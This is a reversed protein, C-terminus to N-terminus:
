DPPRPPTDRSAVAVGSLLIKGEGMPQDYDDLTHLRVSIGKELELLDMLGAYSRRWEYLATSSFPFSPALDENIRPRVWAEVGLIRCFEVYIEHVELAVAARTEEKRAKPPDRFVKRCDALKKKALSFRNQQQIASGKEEVFIKGPGQEFATLRGKLEDKEDSPGKAKRTLNLKALQESLKDMENVKIEIAQSMHTLDQSKYIQAAIFNHDFYRNRRLVILNHSADRMQTQLRSESRVGEVLSTIFMPTVREREFIKLLNPVFLEDERVLPSTLDMYAVNDVVVRSCRYTARLERFKDRIQQLVWGSSRSGVELNLLEMRDRLTNLDDIGLQQGLPGAIIRGLSEWSDRFAIFLPKERKNRKPRHDRKESADQHEPKGQVGTNQDPSNPEARDSHPDRLLYLLALETKACGTPGMLTTVSHPRVKGSHRDGTEKSEPRGGGLVLDLGAHGLSLESYDEFQSNDMWTVFSTMAEGSPYICVGTSSEIEMPHVGKAFRQTRVKEIELLRLPRTNIQELAHHRGAVLMGTRIVVDGINPLFSYPEDRQGDGEHSTTLWLNFGMRTAEELIQQTRNRLLQPSGRSGIDRPTILAADLPDVTLFRLTFRLFEPLGVIDALWQHLRALSSDRLNHVFLFGKGERHAERLGRTVIYVEDEEDIRDSGPMYVTDRNPLWGFHHAQALVADVSQELALVIGAGGKAAMEFALQTALTTKGAGFRGRIVGMLGAPGPPTNRTWRESRSRRPTSPHPILGGGFLDDFGPIATKLGFLKAVLVSSEPVRLLELLGPEEAEEESQGGADSVAARSVEEDSSKDPPSKWRVMGLCHTVEILGDFARWEIEHDPELPQGATDGGAETAAHFLWGPYWELSSAKTRDASISDPEQQDSSNASDWIRAVGYIEKRLKKDPIGALVDTRGKGARAENTEEGQARKAESSDAQALGHISEEAKIASLASVFARAHRQFTSNLELGYFIQVNQYYWFAIDDKRRLSGLERTVEYLIQPVREGGSWRLKFKLTTPSADEEANKRVARSQDSPMKFEVEWSLVSSEPGVELGEVEVRPRDEDRLEMEVPRHRTALGSELIEQLREAQVQKSAPVILRQTVWRLFLCSADLLPKVVIQPPAGVSSDAIRYEEDQALVMVVELGAHDTNDRM